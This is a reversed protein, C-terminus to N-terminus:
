IGFFKSFPPLNELLVKEETVNNQRKTQLFLNKQFDFM